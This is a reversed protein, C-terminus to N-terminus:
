ELNLRSYKESKQEKRLAPHARKQAELLANAFALREQKSMTSVATITADIIYRASNERIVAIQESNGRYSQVDFSDQKLLDYSATRLSNVVEKDKDSKARAEDYLAYFQDARAKSLTKTFKAMEEQWAQRYSPPAQTVANDSQQLTVANGVFVGICLVNFCLSAFLVRRTPSM